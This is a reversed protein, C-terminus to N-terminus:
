FNQNRGTSIESALAGFRSYGKTKRGKGERRM